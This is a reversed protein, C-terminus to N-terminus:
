DIFEVVEEIPLREPKESTEEVPVGMAVMSMLEYGEKEGILAEIEKKAHSPGTMYCTGYGLDTAKLLFNEVAAGIAQAASQTSQIADIIAKMENQGALIKEEIMFYPKAYVVVLVPAGKFLTYYRMLKMFKEKTKEDKAFSAIEEHRKEVVKTLQQILEKNQIVVFHWNQQHKPSPAQCAAELCAVIDEKKVPENKFKRISKRSFIGETINMTEELYHKEKLIGLKM